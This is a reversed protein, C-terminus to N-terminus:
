RGVLGSLRQKAEIALPQNWEIELSRTYADLAGRYDKRRELIAGIKNFPLPTRAGAQAWARYTALTADEDQLRECVQGLAQHAADLAPDLTIAGTLLTRAEADKGANFAALGKELAARAQQGAGSDVATQLGKVAATLGVLVPCSARAPNAFRVAKVAVDPRPNVWLMQYVCIVPFVPTSGTWAVRSQTGKERAFGGPAGNWDRLNTGSELVIEQESGDAYQIQYRGAEGKSSYALGHLFWLGEVPFGLPLTVEEPQLNPFPRANSRLVICGQPEAGILFPVGGFTQKGTPFERLDLKPGQDTWGGKGDDGVEDVFGRNAYASLDVPQYTVGAPLSRPPVYPEIGVGLGIMLASVVRATLGDIKTKGTEWRLTDVILRGKGVPLEVLAGPFIHETMGDAAASWWCLDEIKLKPNEAQGSGAEAGDYDKWYLDIQSLGATLWTFGNRYGRGEWMGYPQATLTVPRAALAALLNSQAPVPGNVVVTAGDAVATRWAAPPAFSDPLGGADLLVTAGTPWATEPQLVRCDVGVAKLRDLAASGPQAVVYLPQIPQRFGEAGAIYRVLRLALDRAMPETADKGIVPFQNLLYLGKGRYCELMQVWELGTDTGSDVLTVCAGGEPKTYAGRASVHDPSWFHLDWSTIPSQLNSIPSQPVPGSFVPHQPTRVFPM